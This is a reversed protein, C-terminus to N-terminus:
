PTAPKAISTALDAAAKIATDAASIQTDLAALDATTARGLLLARVLDHQQVILAARQALAAAGATMTQQSPADLQWRKATANWTYQPAPQPPQYDVLLDPTAIFPPPPQPAPVAGGPIAPTPPTIPPATSLPIQAIDVRQALYDVSGSPAELAAAGPPTNAALSAPDDTTFSRGLLIGTAQDYFHFTRIM